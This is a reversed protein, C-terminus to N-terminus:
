AREMDHTNAFDIFEELLLPKSFYYGQVTECGIKKLFRIQAESEAGETLVAKNLSKSMKVLMSALGGNEEQPYDKIFARDIKIKDIPIKNLYLFSSYGTGFDDIAISIGKDRIDCLITNIRSMQTIFVNETIEIEINSYSLNNKGISEYFHNLFQSDDFQMTSINIACRLYESNDILPLMYSLDSCVREIIWKGLYIMMHHKEAIPIFLAPSISGLEASDWRLLAEMGSVKNTKLDVQPQYVMYLEGRDIAKKLNRFVKKESYLQERMENNYLSLNSDNNMNTWEHAILSNHFLLSIDKTDTPYVSSGIKTKYFIEKSNIHIIQSIEENFRELYLSLPEDVYDLNIMVCLQNIGIKAIIDDQHVVPKILSVFTQLLDDDNINFLDMLFNYNEISIYLLLFHDMGTAVSSSIMNVIVENRINKLYNLSTSEERDIFQTNTFDAFIGIYQQNIYCNDNMRFVSLKLPYTLGNKKDSWIIGKWSGKKDLASAIEVRSDINNVVSFLFNYTKGKSELKSYGTIKTFSDNTYTFGYDKNYMIVADNTTKAIESSISLEDDKVKLCNLILAIILALIILLILSLGYLSFVFTSLSLPLLPFMKNVNFSNVVVWKENGNLNFGSSTAFLNFYTIIYDGSKITGYSKSNIESSLLNELDWKDLEIQPASNFQYNHTISSNDGDFILLNLRGGEGETTYNNIVSIIEDADYDVEIVGSLVEDHIIPTYIRLYSTNPESFNIDLQDFFLRSIVLNSDNEITKLNSFISTALNDFSTTSKKTLQNSIKETELVKENEYDFFRIRQYNKKNNIYKEFMDLVNDESSKSPKVRLTYLYESDGLVKANESIKEIYNSILFSTNKACM